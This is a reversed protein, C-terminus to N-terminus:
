KYDDSHTHMTTTTTTTTLTHTHMCDLLLLLMCLHMCDGHRHCNPCFCCNLPWCHSWFQLLISPSPSPLPSHSFAHVPLLFVNLVCGFVLSHVPLICLLIPLIFIIPIVRRDCYCCATLSQLTRLICKGWCVACCCAPVPMVPSAHSCTMGLSHTLVLLTLVM